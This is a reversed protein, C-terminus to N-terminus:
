AAPRDEKPMITYPHAVGPFTLMREAWGQVNPYNAVNFGGEEATAIWPFIAIDAITPAGGVMFKTTGLHRDLTALAQEGRARMYSKVEEHTQPQFKAFTRSLGVGTSFRDFDWGLWELARWRETDSRGLFRGFHEALYQLIANSQVIFREGHQLVPVQGFRNMALYEPTKNQGERMNVHKYSWKAGCMSLMLGVKASPMSLFVGYLTFPEEKPKALKRPKPASKRIAAGKAARAASKKAAAKIRANAVLKKPRRAKAKTRKKAV